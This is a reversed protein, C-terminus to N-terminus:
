MSDAIFKRLVARGSDSMEIFKITLYYVSEKEVTKSSIVRSMTIFKFNDLEFSLPYHRDFSLMVPSRLVCEYENLQAITCEIKEPTVSTDATESSVPTAEAQPREVTVFANIMVNIYPHRFEREKTIEGPTRVLLHNMDIGRTVTKVKYEADNIKLVHVSVPKETEYIKLNKVPTFLELAIFGNGRGALKGPFTNGEDDTLYIVESDELDPLAEFQKPNETTRFIKKHIVALDRIIDTLHEMEDPQKKIYEIFDTMASEFIAARAVLEKPNALKLYASMNRLIKIQFNSLGKRKVHFLFLQYNHIRAQDKLRFYYLILYIVLIAFILGLIVSIGIVGPIPWKINLVPNYVDM